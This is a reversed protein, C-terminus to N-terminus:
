LLLGKIDELLKGVEEGNIRYYVKNAEKELKVLRANVLASMHYSITSTSLNLANAIEFGYAPKDKIYILIDFKSRDSLLKLSNNIDGIDAAPPKINLNSDILLGLYMVDAKNEEKEFISCIISQSFFISPIIYTGKESSEWTFSNQKQFEKLLDNERSYNMWYDYFIHELENVEKQCEKILQIIKTFIDCIEDLLQDHNIYAQVIKWRDEVSLNDDQMLLRTIDEFSEAPKEGILKGGMAYEQSLIYEFDKWLDSSKKSRAANEYDEFSNNNIDPFLPLLFNALPIGSDGLMKFYFDLRNNNLRMNETVHERIKEIMNLIMDFREINKSAKRVGDTVLQAKEYADKNVYYLLLAYAEEVYNVEKKIIVQM